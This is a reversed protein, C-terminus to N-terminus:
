RRAGQTNAAATRELLIDLKRDLMDLKANQTADVGAQSNQLQSIAPSISMGANFRDGAIAWAAFMIGLATAVATWITGKTALKDFKQTLRSELADDRADVYDKMLVQGAEPGGDDGGGAPPPGQFRGAGVINNGPEPM